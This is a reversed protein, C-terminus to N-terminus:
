PTPAILQGIKTAIANMTSAFSADCISGLVNNPFASAFQTIRVGPDGFSEDTTSQTATPTSTPAAGRARLLAHGAAM